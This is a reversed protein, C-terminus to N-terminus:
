SIKVNLKNSFLYRLRMIIKLNFKNDFSVSSNYVNKESRIRQLWVENEDALKRYEECKKWFIINEDAFEKKLFEQFFSIFILIIAVKSLCVHM